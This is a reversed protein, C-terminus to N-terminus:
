QKPIIFWSQAHLHAALPINTCSVVMGDFVRIERSEQSQLGDTPGRNPATRLAREHNDRRM